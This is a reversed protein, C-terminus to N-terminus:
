LKQRRQRTVAPRAQGRRRRRGRARPRGKGSEDRGDRGVTQQRRRGKEVLHTDSRAGQAVDGIKVRRRDWLPRRAAGSPAAAGHAVVLDPRGGQVQRVANERSEPRGAGRRLRVGGVDSVVLFHNREKALRVNDVDDLFFCISKGFVLGESFLYFM